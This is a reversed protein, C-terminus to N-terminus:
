RTTSRLPLAVSPYTITAITPRVFVADLHKWPVSPPPPLLTAAKAADDAFENGVTGIHAQTWLNTIRLGPLKETAACILKDYQIAHFQGGRPSTSLIGRLGAQSDSVMLIHDAGDALARETGPLLGEIEGEAVQGDGLPLLIRERVRLDPAVFIRRICCRFKRGVHRGGFTQHLQAVVSNSPWRFIYEDQVELELIVLFHVDSRPLIELVKQLAQALVAHRRLLLTYVVQPGLYEFITRIM